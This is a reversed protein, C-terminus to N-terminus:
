LLQSSVKGTKGLSKVKKSSPLRRAAVALQSQLSRLFAPNPAVGLDIQLGVERSWTM